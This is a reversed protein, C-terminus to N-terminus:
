RGLFVRWFSGTAELIQGLPAESTDHVFRNRDLCSLGTSRKHELLLGGRGVFFCAYCPAPSVRIVSDERLNHSSVLVPRFPVSCGFLPISPDSIPERTLVGCLTRLPM